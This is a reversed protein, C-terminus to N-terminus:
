NSERGSSFGEDSHSSEDAHQRSASKISSKSYINLRPEPEEVNPNTGPIFLFLEVIITPCVPPPLARRIVRWSYNDLCAEVDVYKANEEPDDDHYTVRVEALEYSEGEKLLCLPCVFSVPVWDVDWLEICVKHYSSHCKSCRLCEWGMWRSGSGCLCRSGDSAEPNVEANFVFKPKQRTMRQTQPQMTMQRHLHMLSLGYAFVEPRASIEFQIQYLKRM